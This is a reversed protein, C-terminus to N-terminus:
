MRELIRQIRSSQGPDGLLQERIANRLEEGRPGQLIEGGFSDELVWDVMRDAALQLRNPDQPDLDGLIERLESTQVSEIRDISESKGARQAEEMKGQFRAGSPGDVRGAGEDEPLDPIKSGPGSPPDIKM